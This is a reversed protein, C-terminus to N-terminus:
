VPEAPPLVTTQCSLEQAVLSHRVVDGTKLKFDPLHQSVQVGLAARTSGRDVGLGVSATGREVVDEGDSETDASIGNFM